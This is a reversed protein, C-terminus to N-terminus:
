PCVTLNNLPRIPLNPVLVLKKLDYAKIHVVFKKRPFHRYPIIVKRGTVNRKKNSMIFTLPNRTTQM